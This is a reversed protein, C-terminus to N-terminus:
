ATAEAPERLAGSSRRHLEALGLAHEENAGRKENCQRCALVTRAQGDTRDSRSGSLRSDLHDLTAQREHMPAHRMMGNANPPSLILFTEQQCWVCRCDELWLHILRRRKRGKHM